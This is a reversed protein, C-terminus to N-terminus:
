CVQFANSMDNHIEIFSSMRTNGATVTMIRLLLETLKEQRDLFAKESNSELNSYEATPVGRRLGFLQLYEPLTCDNILRMIESETTDDPRSLYLSQLLNIIM